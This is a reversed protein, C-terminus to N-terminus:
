VFFKSEGGRLEAAVAERAKRHRSGVLPYVNKVPRWEILGGPAGGKPHRGLRKM